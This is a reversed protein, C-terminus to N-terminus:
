SAGKEKKWGAQGSLGDGELNLRRVRDVIDLGLDLVLLADRGVLLTENEGALLKLIAARKGVVVNLLTQEVASHQIHLYVRFSVAQGETHEGLTLGGGQGEDGRHFASRRLSTPKSKEEDLFRQMRALDGM